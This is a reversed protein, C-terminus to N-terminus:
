PESNRVSLTRGSTARAAGSVLLEGGVPVEGVQVLSLTLAVKAIEEGFVGLAPRPHDGLCGPQAEVVGLVPEVGLGEPAEDLQRPLRADLLAPGGHEGTLM